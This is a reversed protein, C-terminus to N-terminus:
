VVASGRVAQSGVMLSAAAQRPLVSLRPPGGGEATNPGQLRAVVSDLNRAHPHPLPKAGKCCIFARM